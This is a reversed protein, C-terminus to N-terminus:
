PPPSSSSSSSSSPSRSRSGGRHGEGPHDPLSGAAGGPGRDEVGRSPPHSAGGRHSRPPSGRRRPSGPGHGREGRLLAPLLRYADRIYFVPDGHARSAPIAPRAFRKVFEGQAVLAISGRAGPPRSGPHAPGYVRFKESEPLVDRWSLISRPKRAPTTRTDCRKSLTM